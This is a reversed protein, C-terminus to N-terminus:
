GADVPRRRVLMQGVLDVQREASPPVLDVRSLGSYTLDEDEVSEVPVYEDELLWYRAARETPFRHLRGDLDLVEASGDSFVQLRAWLLDPLGGEDIWWGIREGRVESM